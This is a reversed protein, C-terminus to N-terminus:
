SKRRQLAGFPGDDDRMALRDALLLDSRAALPSRLLNPPCRSYGQDGSYTEPLWAPRGDVDGTWNGGHDPRSQSLRSPALLATTQRHHLLSSLCRDQITAGHMPQILGPRFMYAAAFPLRLLANETKGKIRAWMSRGQETSDTGAGSVYIFKMEPNLRCLTEAAALNHRLNHARIRRSENRRFLRRTFLLLCRLRFTRGRDGRLAMPRSARDRAIQPSPHRHSSGVSQRCWNWMRTWFVSGCCVRGWWGQPALSCSM